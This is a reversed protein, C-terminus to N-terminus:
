SRLVQEWPYVAAAHLIAAVLTLSLLATVLAAVPWGRGRSPQVPQGPEDHLSATM